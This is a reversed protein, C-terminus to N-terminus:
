WADSLVDRKIGREVAALNEETYSYYGCGSPTISVADLDDLGDEFLLIFKDEPKFKKMSVGDSLLGKSNGIMEVRSYEPNNPITHNKLSKIIRIRRWLSADSDPPIENQWKYPSANQTQNMPIVEAVAAYKYDRAYLEINCLRPADYESANAYLKEEEKALKWAGPYIEEGSKCEMWRTLCSLNFDLLQDQVKNETYPSFTARIIKCGTCIPVIEASYEPHRLLYPWETFSSIHTEGDVDGSLMYQNQWEIKQFIPNVFTSIGFSKTWIIGDKVQIRADVLEYRGGLVQYPKFLWRCCERPEKWIHGNPMFYIPFVRFEDEMAIQYDCRESTCSSEYGGWEGWENMMKQADAWTSKGMQIDRIENLLREARWRLLHQQVQVFIFLGIVLVVVLLTTWRVVRWLIKRISM